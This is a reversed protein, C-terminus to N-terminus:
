RFINNTQNVDYELGKPIMTKGKIEEDFYLYLTDTTERPVMMYLDLFIGGLSRPTGFRMPISKRKRPQDPPKNVTAHAIM